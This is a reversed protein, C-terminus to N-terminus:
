GFAVMREVVELAAEFGAPIRAELTGPAKLVGIGVAVRQEPFEGEEAVHKVLPHFLGHSRRRLEPPDSLGDLMGGMDDGDAPQPGAVAVAGAYNDARTRSDAEIFATCASEAAVSVTTTAVIRGKILVPAHHTRSRSKGRTGSTKSVAPSMTPQAMAAGVPANRIRATKTRRSASATCATCITGKVGAYALSDKFGDTSSRFLRTRSSIAFMRILLRRVSASISRM